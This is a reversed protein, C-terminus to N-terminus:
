NDEFLIRVNGLHDTLQFQYRFPVGDEESPIIRGTSHHIATLEGDEYEINGCYDFLTSIGDVTKTKRLKEGTALYQITLFDPGFDVRTPLNLFNNTLAIAKRSDSTLTGMGDYGYSAIQGKFGQYRVSEELVKDM